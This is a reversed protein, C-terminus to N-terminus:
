HGWHTFRYVTRNGQSHSPPTTAQEQRSTKISHRQPSKQCKGQGTVGADQQGGRLGTVAASTATHPASTGTSWWVSCFPVVPVLIMKIWLLSSHSGSKKKFTEERRRKKVSQTTSNSLSGTRGSRAGWILAASELGAAFTQGAMRFCKGARHLYSWWMVIWLVAM